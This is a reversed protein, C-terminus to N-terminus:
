RAVELAEALTFAGHYLAAGLVLGSVGAETLERVRRVDDLSAVGGSAIVPCGLQEAVRAFLATDVGHMRGDRAADAVVVAHPRVDGLWDLVEELDGLRADTGRAVVGDEAVDLGVALRAGHRAVLGAVLEPDRLALSSLVVRQAGTAIAQEVHAQEVLGGSLQVPRDTSGVLGTLLATNHGRGFALDLDVLHVWDAGEAVWRAVVEAPEDTGGGVVQAARGGAVDVAPLLTLAPTTM